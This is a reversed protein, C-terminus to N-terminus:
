DCIRCKTDMLFCRLNCQLRKKKWNWYMSKFQQLFFTVVVSLKLAKCYCWGLYNLCYNISLPPFFKKLADRIWFIYMMMGKQVSNSDLNEVDTDNKTQCYGSSLFVSVHSLKRRLSLFLKNILTFFVREPWEHGFMLSFVHGKYKYHM